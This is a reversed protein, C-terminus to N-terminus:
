KGMNGSIVGWILLGVIFSFCCFCIMGPLFILLTNRKAHNKLRINNTEYAGICVILMPLFGVALWTVASEWLQMPLMANPNLIIDVRLVIIVSLVATILAGTGWLINTFLKEFNM